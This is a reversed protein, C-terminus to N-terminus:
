VRRYEARVTLQELDLDARALHMAGCLVSDRRVPSELFIRAAGVLEIASELPEPLHQLELEIGFSRVFKELEELEVQILVLDEDERRRTVDDLQRLSCRRDVERKGHVGLDPQM